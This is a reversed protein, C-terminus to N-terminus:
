SFRLAESWTELHRYSLGYNDVKLKEANEISKTLERDLQGLDSKGIHRSEEFRNLLFHAKLADDDLRDFFAAIHEPKLKARPKVGALQLASSCVSCDCLLIPQDSLLARVNAVVQQRKLLRLYYRSPFGGGTPKATTVKSEGFGIGSSVRNAGVVGLCLSYYGAHMLHVKAREASLEKVARKLSALEPGGRKAESQGSVWLIVGAAGKFTRCTRGWDAVRLWDPSAAILTHTEITEKHRLTEKFFQVNVGLWPDEEDTFHFYPAILAAPQLDGPSAAEGLMRRYKGLSAQTPSKARQVELQLDIVKSVFTRLLATVGGAGDVFDSPRVPRRRVIKSFDNGYFKLLAEYSKKVEKEGKILDSSQSFIYTMPDILFPKSTRTLLGTVWARGWALIHAPVVFGRYTNKNEELVSQDQASGLRYWLEPAVM